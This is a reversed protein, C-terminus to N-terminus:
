GPATSGADEQRLEAVVVRNGEVQVVEIPRGRRIMEGQTVVNIRRGEISAIGAPRLTSRAVGRKGLLERFEPDAASWEEESAALLLRRGTRSKPLYKVLIAALIPLGICIAFVLWLGLRPHGGLFAAAAVAALVLVGLTGLVGGPVFVEAVLLMIGFLVMAIIINMSM